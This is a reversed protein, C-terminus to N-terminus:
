NGRVLSLPPIARWLRLQDASVSVLGDGDLTFALSKIANEHGQLTAVQQLSATCWLTLIGHYDGIAFTLGDASVACSRLGYSSTTQVLQTKGTQLNCLRIDNGASIVATDNLGFAVGDIHDDDIRFEQETGLLLDWVKVRGNFTGAAIRRGDRSFAISRAFPSRLTRIVTFNSTTLLRIEQRLAMAFQSTDPSFAFRHVYVPGLSFSRLPARNLVDWLVIQNPNKQADENPDCGAFLALSARPSVAAASLNTVPCPFEEGPKLAKVDWVSCVNNSSITLLGLGDSSLRYAEGGTTTIFLSPLNTSADRVKVASINWARITQDASGTFLTSGDPTFALSNAYRTHGRLLREERTQMGILRVFDEDGAVALTKDDPSFALAATDIAQNTFVVSDFSALNWIRITKDYASSALSNGDHTFALATIGATHGRLTTFNTRSDANWLVIDGSKGPCYAILPTNPSAALGLPSQFTWFAPLLAVVRREQLDFVHNGKMTDQFVLFRGDFTFALVSKAWDVQALTEPSANHDLNWLRLPNPGGQHGPLATVTALWRADPSQAAAWIGHEHRLERILKRAPLNWFKVTHDMGGSWLTKGDPLLGVANVDGSHRGVIFLDDGQAQQMLYRWEWSSASSDRRPSQHRQLREVARGFENRSIAQQALLMDAAYLGDEARHREFSEARRAQNIRYIVLPSGLLLLFLLLILLSYASALAPNRQSWRILRALRTIPRAMIPQNRLFRQLDDALAQATAYRKAPDKELCKLCIVELDRPIEPNLLRPAAPDTSLVLRITSELTDGSFPARATLLYYLLAGLGYVDSQRSAKGRAPEAQEPPMFHPSGLVQGTIKSGYDISSAVESLSELTTGSFITLISDFTTGATLDFTFWGSGPATWQYWVSADYDYFYYGKPAVEAAEVTGTRNDAALDGEAGAIRQAGAFADNPLPFRFTWVYDDLPAAQPLGDFNGDLTRGDRDKAMATLRATYNTRLFSDQPRYTFQRSDPSWEFHGAAPPDIVFAQEVSARDMPQSFVVQIPSGAGARLGTPYSWIVMPSRSSNTLSQLARSVNLRGGTVIKGKAAPIVDVSGLLAARLEAVSIDPKAACLLAAAAAVHPTASSSGAFDTIYSQGFGLTVIETGPAVLDVTSRGYNYLLGDSRDSGGVTLLAFLDDTTSVWQAVDLNLGANAAAFVCLIGEEGVARVSDSVVASVIDDYYGLGLVRLNVGRRKMQIMYEMSEVFGSKDSSYTQQEDGASFKIAMIRVQWNIGASGTGNNGVAGIVGACKTGHPSPAVVGPRTAGLDMPDGTHNQVDIGYVDDIYGNSDDDIGNTAKDGGQADRGTEGPNRWMNAALDPHLYNVGTDMVAVVVNTDGTTAAWAQEMGIKKLNWQSTYRPDSPVVRTASSSQAALRQGCSELTDSSAPLPEFSYSFKQNLEVKLVGPQARYQAIGQAISTGDPLRVLHWGIAEFSRLRSAGTAADAARAQNTFPGGECKVLLEIAPQPAGRLNLETGGLITLLSISVSRLLYQIEKLM